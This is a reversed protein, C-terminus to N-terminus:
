DAVVRQGVCRPCDEYGLEDSDGYNSWQLREAASMEQLKKDRTAQSWLAGDGGCAPCRRKGDLALWLDQVISVADCNCINVGHDCGGLETLFEILATVLTKPVPEKSVVDPYDVHEARYKKMEEQRATGWGPRYIPDAVRFAESLLVDDVEVWETSM